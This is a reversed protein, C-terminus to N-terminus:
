PSTTPPTPIAKLAAEPPNECNLDKLAVITRQYNYIGELITKPPIGGVGDPNARLFETNALARRALDERLACLADRTNRASLYSYIAVGGLVLYLIATAIVLKRLGRRLRAATTNANRREELPETM